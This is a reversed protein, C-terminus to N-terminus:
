RIINGAAFSIMAVQGRVCDVKLVVELSEPLRGGTGGGLHRELEETGAPSTLYTATAQVARSCIGSIVLIHTGPTMGPRLIVLGYTTRLAQTTADFEDQWKRPAGPAASKNIIQRPNDAFEFSQSPALQGVLRNGWRPSILIVNRYRCQEGTFKESEELSVAAGSGAFIRMVGYIGYVSGVDAWSADFMVERDGVLGRVEAPADSPLPIHEYTSAATNGEYLLLLPYREELRLFMRTQYVVITPVTANRFRSWFEEVSRPLDASRGRQGYLYGLLICGSALLGIALLSMRAPGARRPRPEAGPPGPALPGPAPPEAPGPSPTRYAFHPLYGGRPIEVLVKDELGEEGYYEALKARLRSAHVRVANDVRGNFGGHKGLVEVAITTEKVEMARGERQRSVVFELLRQLLPSSHFTRSALIRRVQKEILVPDVESDARLLQRL